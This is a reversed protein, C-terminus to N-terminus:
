YFPSRSSLSYSMACSSSIFMPGQTWTIDLLIINLNTDLSKYIMFEDFPISFLISIKFFAQIVRM